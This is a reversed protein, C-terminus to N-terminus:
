FILFIWVILHGALILGLVQYDIFLALVRNGIGALAFELEVSEPTSLTFRNNYRM